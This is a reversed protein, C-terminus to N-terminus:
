QINTVYVLTMETDNMMRAMLLKKSDPFYHMLQFLYSTGVRGPTQAFPSVIWKKPMEFNSAQNVVYVGPFREPMTRYQGTHIYYSGKINAVGYSHYLDAPQDEINIQEQKKLTGDLGFIVLYAPGYKLEDKPFGSSFGGNERTPKFDVKYKTEAFLHIENNQIFVHQMQVEKANKVGFGSVKMNQIAKGSQLDLFLLNPFDGARVGKLAHNFALLYDEAGISISKPQHLLIETELQKEEQGEQTGIVLYNHQKWGKAARVYVVKGSNTVTFYRTTYKDNFAYEKQWAISQTNADILMFLNKEAEEKAQYMTYNIGVYRGNDSKELSVSGSKMASLIATTNLETTTFQATAKDFTHVSIISKKAKGSYSQTFVAVKGNGETYGLYNYLTSADIKPFDYTYKQLMQNAQDFKRVLMQRSSMMGDTVVVSLMYHNYNDKLVFQPDAESKSDFQFAAGYETGPQAYAVNLSILTLLALVIKKM